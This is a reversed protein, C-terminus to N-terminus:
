HPFQAALAILGLRILEVIMGNVSFGLRQAQQRIETIMQSPLRLTTQEREM